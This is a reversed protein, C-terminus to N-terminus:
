RIWGNKRAVTEPDGIKEGTRVQVAQVFQSAELLSDHTGCDFWFADDLTHFQLEGGPIYEQSLDTIELEGRASPLLKKAVEVVTEDYFYLGPVAWNSKPNKPKEEINILYGHKDLYAVGYASPEAVKCGFVANRMVSHKELLLDLIYSHFINDGLALAAGDGNLFKEGIIFAEAIGNPSEQITYSLKVGFQSGDGLLNSFLTLSLDSGVIILIERIGAKMLTALPYYIMPKDYVPLLQKNVSRTIPFLRSGTGGALIIGKRKM